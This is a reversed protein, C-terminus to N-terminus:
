GDSISCRIVWVDYRPHDLASLAPAAAIMWGRFAPEAAGEERITLWAFANSAPDEAPYRCEGATVLLRGLAFHEGDALTFDVTQGTVKDLGRLEAAPAVAMRPPPDASPPPEQQALAPAAALMLALAAAKM